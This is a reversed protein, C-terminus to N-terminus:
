DMGKMKTLFDFMALSIGVGALLFALLIRWDLCRRLLLVIFIAVIAVGVVFGLPFTIWGITRMLSDAGSWGLVAAFFHWACSVFSVAGFALLHWRTTPRGLITARWPSSWGSNM